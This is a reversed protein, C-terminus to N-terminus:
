STKSDNNEILAARIQQRMVDESASHALVTALPYPRRQITDGVAVKEGNIDTFMQYTCICPAFRRKLTGVMESPRDWTYHHGDISFTFGGDPMPHAHQLHAEEEGKPVYAHCIGCQSMNDMTNRTDDKENKAILDKEKKTM